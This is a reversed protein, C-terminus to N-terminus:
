IRRMSGSSARQQFDRAGGNVAAISAFADGKKGEFAGITKFADLLDIIRVQEKKPLRVFELQEHAAIGFPKPPLEQSVSISRESM